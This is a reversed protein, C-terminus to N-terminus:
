ALMAREQGRRDLCAARTLSGEKFDNSCKRFFGRTPILGGRAPCGDVFGASVRPEAQLVRWRQGCAGSLGALATYVFLNQEDAFGRIMLCRKALGQYLRVVRRSIQLDSMAGLCSREQWRCKCIIDM